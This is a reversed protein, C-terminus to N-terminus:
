DITKIEFDIIDPNQNVWAEIFSSCKKFQDLADIPSIDAIVHKIIKQVNPLYRTFTNPYLSYDGHNLHNRRDIFIPNPKGKEISEKDNLLKEVPLHQKQASELTKSTLQLWSSHNTKKNLKDFQEKRSTQMLKDKNIACEVAISSFVISADMLGIIYCDRAITWARTIGGLDNFNGSIKEDVYVTKIYKCIGSVEKKREDLDNKAKEIFSDTEGDLIIRKEPM